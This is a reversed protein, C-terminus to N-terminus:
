VRRDPDPQKGRLRRRPAEDTLRVKSAGGTGSGTVLKLSDFLRIFAGFSPVNGMAATFGPQERLHKSATAATVAAGKRRLFSILENAYPQLRGRRTADTLQSGRQEIRRPGADNTTDSVPLVFKTLHDKRKDDVVVAGDIEKVQRVEGFRPKFGRTFKGGMDEMGRFQGADELKQGRKEVRKHNYESYRANKDKLLRILDSNTSVKAPPVGELYDDIPNNNQGRTVKELRSAWDDTGVKRIDRVLAKKLQGIATDITSIANIDEKRKTYVEIGEAKLAQEFPGQFEPGLDSTVTKPKAGARTMIDEFAKAVIEPRKSTLAETWLFRSFVDQVVLIYVEGEKTEGLGTRKGRDSPAATFDVLDCFWRDHMGHAAIKGDFKYAPAQVQRVAERRVLKEIEKRDYAIGRGDLVKRLKQSSPFNLEEFVEEPTSM